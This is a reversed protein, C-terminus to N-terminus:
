RATNEVIEPRKKVIDVFSVLPRRTLHQRRQADKIIARVDGKFRKTLATRNKRVEEIIPDPKM